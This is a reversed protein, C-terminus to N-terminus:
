ESPRLNSDQRPRRSACPRRRRRADDCPVDVGGILPLIEDMIELTREMAVPQLGGTGPRFPNDLVNILLLTCTIVITVGGMLTAQVLKGEGSDAFFLM